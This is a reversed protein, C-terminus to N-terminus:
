ETDVTNLVYQQQVIPLSKQPLRFPAGVRDHGGVPWLDGSAFGETGLSEKRVHSIPNYFKGELSIPLIILPLLLFLRGLVTGPRQM